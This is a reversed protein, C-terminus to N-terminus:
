PPSVTNEKGRDDRGLHLTTLKCVVLLVRVIPYGGRTWRRWVRRPVVGPSVAWNPRLSIFSFSQPLVVAGTVRVKCCIEGSNLKFSYNKPGCSVFETIWHGVECGKCNVEKCSLENTLKGLYDGLPPIYTDKDKVSYIISDTDHYLVRNELKNMISWLELRAWCTCFAAILVNGNNNTPDFDESNKFELLIM